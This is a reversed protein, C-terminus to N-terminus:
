QDYGSIDIEYDEGRDNLFSPRPVAKSPWVKPLPVMRHRNQRRNQRELRTTAYVASEFRVSTLLCDRQDLDNLLLKAGAKNLLAPKARNKLPKL